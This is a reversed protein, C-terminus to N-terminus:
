NHKRYIGVFYTLIICIIKLIYGYKKPIIGINDYRPYMVMMYTIHINMVVRVDRIM